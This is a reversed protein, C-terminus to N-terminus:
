LIVPDVLILNNSQMKKMWLNQQRTKVLCYWKMLGLGIVGM